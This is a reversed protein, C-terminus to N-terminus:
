HVSGGQKHDAEPAVAECGLERLATRVSALSVSPTDAAMGEEEAVQIERIDYEWARLIRCREDISLRDSEAVARPSSYGRRTGETTSTGGALDPAPQQEERPALKSRAFGYARGILSSATVAAALILVTIGVPPFLLLFIAGVVAFLVAIDLGSVRRRVYTTNPGTGHGVAEAESGARVGASEEPEDDLRAGRRVIDRADSWLSRREDIDEVEDVIRGIALAHMRVDEKRRHQDASSASGEYTEMKM